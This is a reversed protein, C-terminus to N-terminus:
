VFRFYIRFLVYELLLCFVTIFFFVSEGCVDSRDGSLTTHFFHKALCCCSCLENGFMVLPTGGQPWYWYKCSFSWLQMNSFLLVKLRGILPQTPYYSYLRSIEPQANKFWRNLGSFPNKKVWVFVEASCAFQVPCIICSEPSNCRTWVLSPLLLM